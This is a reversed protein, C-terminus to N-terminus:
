LGHHRHTTSAWPVTQVRSRKGRVRVVSVAQARCSVASSATASPAVVLVQATTARNCCVGARSTTLLGSRVRAIAVALILVSRTSASTKAWSSRQTVIQGIRSRGSAAVKAARRGVVRATRTTASRVRSM